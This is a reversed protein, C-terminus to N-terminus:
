IRQQIIAWKNQWLHVRTRVRVPNREYVSIPLLIQTQTQAIHVHEAYYLTAMPNPIRIRVRTRRRWYSHDIISLPTPELQSFKFAFIDPSIVITDYIKWTFGAKITITNLHVLPPLQLLQKHNTLWPGQRGVEPWGEVAEIVDGLVRGIGHRDDFTLMAFCGVAVIKTPWRVKHDSFKHCSGNVHGLFKSVSLLYIKSGSKPRKTNICKSLYSINKSPIYLFLCFTRKECIYM